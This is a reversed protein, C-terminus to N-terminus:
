DEFFGVLLLCQESKVIWGKWSTMTCLIPIAIDQFVFPCWQVCQLMRRSFGQYFFQIWHSLMIMSRTRLQPSFQSGDISMLHRQNILAQNIAQIDGQRKDFHIRKDVLCGV